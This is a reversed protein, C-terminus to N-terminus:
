PHAGQRGRSEPMPADLFEAIVAVVMDPLKIEKSWSRAFGFRLRSDGRRAATVEGIYGAHSGPFM